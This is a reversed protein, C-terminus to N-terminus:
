QIIRKLFWCKRGWTSTKGNRKTKERRGTNRQKVVLGGEL